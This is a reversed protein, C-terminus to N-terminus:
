LLAPHTMGVSPSKHQVIFEEAELTYDMASLNCENRMYTKVVATIQRRTIFSVLQDPGLTRSNFITTKLAGDEKVEAKKATGKEGTMRAREMKMIKKRQGNEKRSRQISM